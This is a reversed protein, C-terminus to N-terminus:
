KLAAEENSFGYASLLQRVDDDSGESAGRGMPWSKIDMVPADAYICAVKDTNQAAWNYVILGGRSMGELVVKKHFGEKVMKAYLKNWRKVAKDAGYMDAVDCYAIHFGQELLAIDTQPQHGWFRARMVWPKGKAEKYPKVIKCAAGDCDFQYGCFGHFNFEEKGQLWDAKDQETCGATLILYSGIQRAMKGAGISSPHLRDPLLHSEWQDGLLNFLNLIELKNKWAIEEIMPRVSAAIREASISSDDTLFCRVPTLLIIRPHSPLSKYSDILRQYDGIFDDKYQWNQPKTDNTGLKILVIDPQFTHSDAFARTKVYPYDGKSLLTCGSIGYNRVEYDSGLYAQLQAPYSNKNRNPINAGYTISNGVCAVKIVAKQAFADMKVLFFSLLLVCILNTKM